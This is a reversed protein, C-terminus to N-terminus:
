KERSGITGCGPNVMLTLRKKGSIGQLIRAGDEGEAIHILDAGRFGLDRHAAPRKGDIVDVRITRVCGHQGKGPHEQFPRTIFGVHDRQPVVIQPIILRCKLHNGIYVGVGPGADIGGPDARVSGVHGPSIPDIVDEKGRVQSGTVRNVDQRRVRCGVVRDM